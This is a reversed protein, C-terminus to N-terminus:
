RDFDIDLNHVDSSMTKFFVILGFEPNHLACSFYLCSSEINENSKELQRAFDRLSVGILLGLIVLSNASLRKMNIMQHTHSYKYEIIKQCGYGGIKV